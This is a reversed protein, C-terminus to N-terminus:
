SKVSKEIFVDFTIKQSLLTWSRHSMMDLLKRASTPTYQVHNRPRVLGILRSAQFDDFIIFFGFIMIKLPWYFFRAALSLFFM